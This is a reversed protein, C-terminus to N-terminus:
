NRMRRIVADIDPVSRLIGAADACVLTVPGAPRTPASATPVHQRAGVAMGGSAPLVTDDVVRLPRERRAPKDPDSERTVVETM